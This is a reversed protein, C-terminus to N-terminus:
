AAPDDIQLDPFAKKLKALTLDHPDVADSEIKHLAGISVDSMNSMQELTWLHAMRYEKLREGITRNKGNNMTNMTDSMNM